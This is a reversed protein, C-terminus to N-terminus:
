PQGFLGDVESQIEEKLPYGNEDMRNPNECFREKHFPDDHFQAAPSEMKESQGIYVYAQLFPM